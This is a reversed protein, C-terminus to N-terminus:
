VEEVPLYVGEVGEETDLLLTESVPTRNNSTRITVMKVCFHHTAYRAM